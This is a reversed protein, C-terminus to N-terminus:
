RLQISHTGRMFPDGYVQEVEIRATYRHFFQIPERQARLVRRLLCAAVGNTFPTQGSRPQRKPSGTLVRTISIWAGQTPFTKRQTRNAGTSRASTHKRNVGDGSTSVRNVRSIEGIWENPFVLIMVIRDGRAFELGGAM